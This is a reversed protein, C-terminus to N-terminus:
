FCMFGGSKSRSTRWSPPSHPSLFGWRNTFNPGGRQRGELCGYHCKESEPQDGVSFSVCVCVSGNRTPCLAGQMYWEACMVSGRQGKTPPLGGFILM